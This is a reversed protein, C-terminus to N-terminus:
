RPAFDARTFELQKRMTGETEGIVYKEVQKGILPISVTATFAETYECRGGDAPALSLRGKLAVRKQGVIEVTWDAFKTAGSTNWHQVDVLHNTPSFVKKMFGPLNRDVDREIRIVLQGTPRDVTVAINKEGAMEARRRLFDPDTVKALMADVDHDFVQKITSDM